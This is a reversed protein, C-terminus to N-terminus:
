RTSVEDMILLVGYKDCVKRIAAFYGDVSPVCGRAAGVVPEAIFAAVQDVGIEIIKEELENALRQAYEKTTEKEGKERYSYCGSVHHFKDSFLPLYPARRAVHGSLSLGGLLNGHYSGERSIFHTRQTDGKEIQYQRALKIASEVAESGGSAFFCRNYGGSKCLLAALEEVQHTTFARSHCYHLTSLQRSIADVVAENAHGISVVAAGGCADLIAREQGSSKDDSVYLYSGKARVITEPDTALNRHLVYSTPCSM